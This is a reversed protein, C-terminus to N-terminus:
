CGCVREESFGYRREVEFIIPPLLVLSFFHSDLKIASNTPDFAISTWLASVVCGIHCNSVSKTLSISMWDLYVRLIYMGFIIYIATEGLYTFNRHKLYHALNMSLTIMVLLLFSAIYVTSEHGGAAAHNNLGADLGATATATPTSHGTDTTTAGMKKPRFIFM